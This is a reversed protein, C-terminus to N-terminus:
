GKKAWEMHASGGCTYMWVIFGLINTVFSNQIKGPRCLAGEKLITEKPPCTLRVTLHLLSDVFRTNSDTYKSRPTTVHRFIVISLNLFFYISLFM